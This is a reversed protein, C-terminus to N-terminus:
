RSTKNKEGSRPHALKYAKLLDPFSVHTYKETTALNKHGLMEQIARLDAGRSLLHTAFSHRITHASYGKTRAILKIYRALIARLEDALLPKGSKSLFLSTDSKETLFKYRIQLYKHLYEQAVRGLPIFRTKDGKGIVKILERNMDLDDLRCGTVESIRLGCSYILELIARNRIGFKTSLDPIKLMLEMEKETFYTPIKKDIKPQKIKLAPNETIISNIVLYNFFSKIATIKRSLTINSYNSYSFNRLFDRIMIKSIDNLIVDNNPFYHEIFAFFQRIDTLYAKITHKSSGKAYLEKKYNEILEALM